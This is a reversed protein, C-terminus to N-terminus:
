QASSAYLDGEAGVIISLIGPYTAAKIPQCACISLSDIPRVLTPRIMHTNTGEIYVLLPVSVEM